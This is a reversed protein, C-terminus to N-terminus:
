VTTVGTLRGFRRPQFTVLNGLVYITAVESYQDTPRMFGTWQFGTNQTPAENYVGEHTGDGLSINQLDPDRLGYWDMYNENNMWITQTPAKEDSVWPIGKFILSTFGQGGRFEAGAIAGRSRRTVVPYGNAEFNARVTPTLLQEYLNFESESSLIHTPRQMGASGGATNSYLTSLKLLTLSGGSATKTGQLTPYTTRSQGGITGVTTGDDNIAQLGLFDKAGNGTGDGYLLDAIADMMDMQSSELETKVLNIVQTESASNVAKELGPIALPMGYGRPDYSMLVRTNVTAMTFTDLGSFSKGLTSKAIKIPKKLVEGSWKKGNGMIRYALFNDALINDVVKPLIKDQTVTKVRNTFTAM